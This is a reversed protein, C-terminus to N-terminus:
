PPLPNHQITLSATGSTNSFQNVFVASQNVIYKAPMTFIAGDSMTIQVQITTVFREGIGGALGPYTITGDDPAGGNAYSIVACVLAHGGVEQSPFPASISVQVQYDFFVSIAPRTPPSELYWYFQTTSAVVNGIQRTFTCQTQSYTPSKTFSEEVITGSGFTGFTADICQNFRPIVMDRRLVRTWSGQNVFTGCPGSRTTTGTGTYTYRLNGGAYLAAYAASSIPLRTPNSFAQEPCAIVQQCCECSAKGDKLIVANDQLRITPM